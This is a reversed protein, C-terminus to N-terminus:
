HTDKSSSSSGGGDDGGGGGWDGWDTLQCSCYVDKSTNV